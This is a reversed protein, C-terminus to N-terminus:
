ERALSSRVRRAEWTWDEVRYGAQRSEGSLVIGHRRKLKSAIQWILVNDADVGYAALAGRLNIKEGPHLADNTLVIGAVLELLNVDVPATERKAPVPEVFAACSAVLRECPDCLVHAAEPDVQHTSRLLSGCRECFPRPATGADPRAVAAGSGTRPM